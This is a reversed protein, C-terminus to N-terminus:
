TRHVVPGQRQAAPQPHPMHGRLGHHRVVGGHPPHHEVCAHGRLQGEQPHTATTHQPQTTINSYSQHNPAHSSPPPIPHSPLTRSPTTTDPSPAGGCAQRSPLVHQPVPFSTVSFHSRRQFTISGTVLVDHSEACHLKLKEGQRSLSAYALRPMISSRMAPGMIQLKGSELNDWLLQAYNRGGTCSLTHRFSPLARWAGRFLSSSLIGNQLQM